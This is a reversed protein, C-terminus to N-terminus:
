ELTSLKGEEWLRKIIPLSAARVGDLVEQKEEETLPRGLVVSRPIVEIVAKDNETRYIEDIFGKM